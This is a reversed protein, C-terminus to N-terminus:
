KQLGTDMYIKYARILNWTAHTTDSLSLYFTGLNVYSEATEPHYPGLRKQRLELSRNYQALAEETNGLAAHIQAFNCCTTAVVPAEKDNLKEEEIFAKKCYELAHEPDDKCLSILALNNYVVAIKAHDKFPAKNYIDLAKISERLADDYQKTERHLVAINQLVTAAHSRNLWLPSMYFNLAKKYYRLAQDYEEKIKYLLALTNYTNGLEVKNPTISQSLTKAFKEYLEIAGDYVGQLYLIEATERLLNFYRVKRSTIAQGISRVQLLVPFNNYLVQPNDESRICPLENLIVAITDKVHHYRPQLKVRLVNAVINHVFLIDGESCQIVGIDILDNIKKYDKECTWRKLDNAPVNNIDLVSIKRLLTKSDPIANLIGSIDILNTIHQFFSAQEEEDNKSVTEPYAIDIGKIQFDDRLTSVTKRSKRCTKALLEISLAHRGCRHVIDRVAQYEDPTYSSGPELYYLMFLNAAEEESLMGLQHSHVYSVGDFPKRSTFLVKCRLGDAVKIDNITKINDFIILDERGYETRLHQIAVRFADDAKLFAGSVCSALADQASNSCNIIAKKGKIKSDALKLCFETKGMGGWSYILVANSKLAQFVEDIEKDHGTYAAVPKRTVPLVTKIISESSHIEHTVINNNNGIIVDRGADINRAQNNIRILKM